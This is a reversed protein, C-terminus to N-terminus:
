NLFINSSLLNHMGLGRQKLFKLEANSPFFDAHALKMLVVKRKFTHKRKRSRRPSATVNSRRFNRRTATILNSFNREELTTESSATAALRLLRSAIEREESMKFQTYKRIYYKIDSIIQLFVMIYCQVIYESDSVTMLGTKRVKRYRQILRLQVAVSIAVLIYCCFYGCSIIVMSIDGNFSRLFQMTLVPM